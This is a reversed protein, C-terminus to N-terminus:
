PCCYLFRGSFLHKLTWPFQLSPHIPNGVWGLGKNEITVMLSNSLINPTQFLYKGTPKLVRWVEKFHDNIDPLHEVLDFSLCVDFCEDPFKLLAADMSNLIIHPFSKKGFSIASASIDVGTINHYGRDYLKNCLKGIGCGIELIKYQKELLNTEKLFLESLEIDGHEKRGEELSHDWIQDYIAKYDLQKNIM